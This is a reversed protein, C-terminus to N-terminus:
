QAVSVALAVRRLWDGNPLLLILPSLTGLNWPHQKESPVRVIVFSILVCDWLYTARDYGSDCIRQRVHAANPRHHDGM